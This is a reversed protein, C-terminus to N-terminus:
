TMNSDRLGVTGILAIAGSLGFERDPFCFRANVPEGQKAIDM